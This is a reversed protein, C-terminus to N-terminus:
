LQYALIPVTYDFHYRGSTLAKARQKFIAQVVVLCERVPLIVVILLSLLRFHDINEFCPSHCLFISFDDNPSCCNLVLVELNSIIVAQLTSSPKLVM